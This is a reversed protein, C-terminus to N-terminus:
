SLITKIMKNISNTDINGNIDDFTLLSNNNPTWANTIYSQLKETQDDCYTGSVMLGMHEIIVLKNMRSDFITFDPLRLETGFFRPLEYVFTYNEAYLLNYILAESKSRTLTGDIAKHRLAEPKYTPHKAKEMLAQRKWESSRQYKFLLTQVKDSANYALPVNLALNESDLNKYHQLLYCLAEINDNCTNIAKELYYKEQLDDIISAKDSGLYIRKEKGCERWSLYYRLYGNVNSALLNYGNYKQFKELRRTFNRLLQEQYELDKKVSDICYSFM